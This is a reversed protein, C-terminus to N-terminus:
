TVTGSGSVSARGSRLFTRPRIRRSPSSKGSFSALVGTSRRSSSTEFPGREGSLAASSLRDQMFVVLHGDAADEEEARSTYGPGPVISGAGFLVGAVALVYVGAATEIGAAGASYHTTTTADNHFQGSTDLVGSSPVTGLEVVGGTFEIPNTSTITIAHDGATADELLWIGAMGDGGSDLFQVLTLAGDVDSSVSFTTNTKDSAVWVVVASGAALDRNSAADMPLTRSTAETEAGLSYRQLVTPQSM